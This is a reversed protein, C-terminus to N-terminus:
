KGKRKKYEPLDESHLRAVTDPVQGAEIAIKAGETRNVFGGDSTVFGRQADEPLDFHKIVEAHVMGARPAIYIKSKVFLAPRHIKM